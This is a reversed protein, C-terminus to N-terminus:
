SLLSELAPQLKNFKFTYHHQLAKEPLVCQGDLILTSMEGLAIKLALEPARLWHPRHLASALDKGFENMKKPHPATVNLPGEIDPNEIAFSIMRVVDDIHVWSFWQQGSGLKGGIFLKYPLMMNPLAGEEDDLIIGFRTLVTRVGFNEAKWAEEEWNKVVQALFDHGHQKTKETFTKTESIGYYGVASANILTSPKKKLAAIIRLVERTATIRSELIKKKTQNTWRNNISEGALNIIVDIGELAKEPTSNETLWEVYTVHEENPKTSPNRTLIFIEDGKQQFFNTLKRGVFGTGGTIAIKM